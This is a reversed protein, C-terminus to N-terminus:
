FIRMRFDLYFLGRSGDDASSIVIACAEPEAM